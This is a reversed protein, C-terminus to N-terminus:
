LGAKMSSWGKSIFKGGKSGTECSAEGVGDGVGQWPDRGVREVVLFCDNGGVRTNMTMILM